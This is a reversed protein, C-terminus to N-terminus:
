PPRGPRAERARVPPRPARPTGTRAPRSTTAAHPAPARRPAGPGPPAPRPPRRPPTARRNASSRRASPPPTDAPQPPTHAHSTCKWALGEPNLIPYQPNPLRIGLVWYEIAALDDADVIHTPAFCKCEHSRLTTRSPM